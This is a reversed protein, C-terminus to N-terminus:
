SYRSFGTGFEFSAPVTIFNAALARWDSFEMVNSKRIQGADLLNTRYM